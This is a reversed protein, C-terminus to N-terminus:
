NILNKDDEELEKQRRTWYRVNSNITTRMKQNKTKNETSEIKVLKPRGRPRKTKTELKPIDTNEM